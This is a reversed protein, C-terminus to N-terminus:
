EDSSSINLTFLSCIILHCTAQKTVKIRTIEVFNEDEILITELIQLMPKYNRKQYLTRCWFERRKKAWIILYATSGFGNTEKNTERSILAKIYETKQSTSADM